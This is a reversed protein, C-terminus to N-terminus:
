LIILVWLLVLVFLVFTSNMYAAVCSVVKASDLFCPISPIVSEKFHLYGSLRMVVYINISSILPFFSISIGSPQPHLYSSSALNSSLLFFFSLFPFFHSIKTIPM